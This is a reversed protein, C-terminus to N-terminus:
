CLRTTLLRIFVAAPVGSLIQQCGLRGGRLLNLIHLRGENREHSILLVLYALIRVKLVRVFRRIATEFKDRPGRRAVVLKIGLVARDANGAVAVEGVEVADLVIGISGYDRSRDGAVRVGAPGEGLGHRIRISLRPVERLRASESGVAGAAWDPDSIAPVGKIQARPVKDREIYLALCLRAAACAGPKSGFEFPQFVIEGRIMGRACEGIPVLGREARGVADGHGLARGSLLKPLHEVLVSGVQRQVSVVVERAAIARKVRGPM